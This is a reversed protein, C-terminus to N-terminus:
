IILLCHFPVLRPIDLDVPSRVINLILPKAEVGKINMYSQQVICVDPRQYSTELSSSGCTVVQVAFFRM